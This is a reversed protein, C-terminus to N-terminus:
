DQLPFRTALAPLRLVRGPPWNKSCRVILAHASGATAYQALPLQYGAVLVHDPRFGPDVALMKEYSRILAGCTNLLVLAAAIEIVVFASRLWAHSSTGSATKSGAKLSDTLNTGLASLAPALSCLAGTALALVVAFGAVV